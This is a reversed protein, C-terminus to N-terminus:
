QAERDIIRHKVLNVKALIEDSLYSIRLDRCGPADCPSDGNFSNRKSFFNKKDGRGEVRM